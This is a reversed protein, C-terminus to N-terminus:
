KEEFAIALVEKIDEVYHFTVGKLYEPKIEDIDRKNVACMIVDTVGARKAALIKERIGGVPLVQGRLTIEGTMALTKRVKRNTLSSVLATTLTIGASPGDKPVAGEPVHVHISHTTLVKENVGIESAHTKIYALALIASERMVDGLNGTITLNPTKAKCLSTEITLVEGGVSTWALGNVVGPYKSDKTQDILYRPEGLLERVDAISLTTNYEEGFAVKKAVKRAVKAITRDLERVGSERTYSEVMHRVVAKPLAMDKKTLGHEELQKPVLYKSAIEVKEELVYGSVDILEMRDLLPKSIQRLSNATAIFLVQSLDYDLDLYNDHFASNQEPDLVELLASAPDGKFDSSVKDIEDLVFVPNSSGVKKINEIIRGPMAGIYTRRHGRIEAEDHMGGLSIRAYKRNLADAISKGLSTKGVGPAGYLCIIPSKFNKQLKLVALHELIREKVEDLGYHAKDLIRKARKLDFNDKTYENWPLSLITEVYNLQMMYDPSNPNTRELRQLEKEFAKKVSEDWKKEKARVRFENLEQEGESGGLEDQITRMQQQLFFERQQQDIGHRAKSQIDAKIELLQVNKTLFDLLRSGRKVADSMMLLEMRESVKLRFNAAIFNLLVYHSEINRVAFSAEPPAVGLDVIKLAMDKVAEVIAAFVEDDENPIREDLLSIRAKWYPDDSVLEEVKVRRKGQLIVTTTNDPMELVKVIKAVVAVNYLDAQQPNNVKHDIQTAVCVEGNNDYVSHVLRLTKKRGISVPLIVNPFLAMNRLPLLPLVDGDQAEVTQDDDGEAVIPLFETQTEAVRESFIDGFTKKM